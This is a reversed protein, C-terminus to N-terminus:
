LRPLPLAGKPESVVIELSDEARLRSASLLLVGDNSGEVGLCLPPLTQPPGRTGASQPARPCFRCHNLPPAAGVQLWWFRREKGPLGSGHFQRAPPHSPLPARCSTARASRPRKGIELDQSELGLDMIQPLVNFM